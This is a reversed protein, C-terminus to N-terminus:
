STQACLVLATRTAMTGDTGSATWRLQYDTGSVGGALSAYIIRGQVQVTGVSFDTSAAPDAVNTFVALSGSDIGVEPPFVTEFSM